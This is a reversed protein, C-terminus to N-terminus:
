FILSPTKELIREYVKTLILLDDVRVKEDTQHAEANILGFEVVPCIDKLFRADSTGGSTSFEPMKGIIESVASGVLQRLVPHQTLFAEGSIKTDLIWRTKHKSKVKELVNELYATLSQGTYISNFRVNLQATAADPIVNTTSNGVDVSTIELNSPDFDEMGNDLPKELVSQLYDLLPPIPNVAFHPYAVHGSRGTVTIKANLSGRRGVKIMQGLEKPNTPEGVLCASIKEGKSKLWEIVKLTGDHAPGEEDSTLLLSISGKFLRKSLIESVAAIFCAIAGKMDVAGRGYLYGDKIIGGFPDVSWKSLDGVPVVDTHGAFCFNPEATGLRAYLNDVDGFPLRHCTFGMGQLHETALDLCGADVPTISPYQILRQTLNIPDLAM